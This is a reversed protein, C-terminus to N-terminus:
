HPLLSCFRFFLYYVVPGFATGMVAMSIACAAHDPFGAGKFLKRSLQAAGLNIFFVGIMIILPFGVASKGGGGIAGFAFGLMGIVSGWFAIATSMILYGIVAGNFHSRPREDTFSKTPESLTDACDMIPLKHRDSIQDVHM